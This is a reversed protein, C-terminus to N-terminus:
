KGFFALDLADQTVELAGVSRVTASANQQYVSGIQPQLRARAPDKWVIQRRRDLVGDRAEIAQNCVRTILGLPRPCSPGEGM